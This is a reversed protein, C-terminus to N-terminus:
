MGDSGQFPIDPVEYRGSADVRVTRTAASADCVCPQKCYCVRVVASPVAEGIAPRDEYQAGPVPAGIVTGRFRVAGESACGPAALVVALLLPGAHDVAM